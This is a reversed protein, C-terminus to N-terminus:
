QGAVLKYGEGRVTQIHRPRATDAEIKKRLRAIQVDVARGSNDGTLGARTALEERSLPQGPQAALAALLATETTTLYLDGEPGSLRQSTLDFTFGGFTLTAAQKQTQAQRRLINQIRLLLERPEFPKTLYDEVGTELGAVRDEGSDMATLLIIPPWHTVERASAALQLGTEGPMMIDLVMLDAELLTLLERAEAASAAETVTYGSDTLFRRLLQRLRRDDDVVLIHASHRTALPSATM